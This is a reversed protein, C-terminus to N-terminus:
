QPLSPSPEASTQDSRSRRHTATCIRTLGRSTSNPSFPYYAQDYFALVVNYNGAHDEQNALELQAVITGANESLGGVWEVHYPSHSAPCDKGRTRNKIRIRKNSRVRSSFLITNWQM